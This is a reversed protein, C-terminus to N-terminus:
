SFGQDGNNAPNKEDKAVSERDTEEADRQLNLALETGTCASSTRKQNRFDVHWDTGRVHTYIYTAADPQLLDGPCPVM